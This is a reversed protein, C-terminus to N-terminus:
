ARPEDWHDNHYPLINTSGLDTDAPCTSLLKHSKM